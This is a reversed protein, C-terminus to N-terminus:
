SLPELDDDAAGELFARGEACTARLSCWRCMPGTRKVPDREGAELTIIRGAADVVRDVAAWLLDETVQETSIRGSDLYSSALLRPPTGVRLTDLLAYFRLDAAHSVHPSGTKFDVIVKGAIEGEARGLTLDPRGSLKVTGDFLEAVISGELVPVWRRDIKPWTELFAVLRSNAEGRVQALTSEGQTSLWDGLSAQREILSGIADDILELPTPEDRRMISLEIAKHAVGGRAKPASWEFDDTGFAVECGHVAELRHKSLFLTTGDEVRRAVPALRSQLERRLEDALASDFRPRDHPAAGLRELTEQQAPSLM